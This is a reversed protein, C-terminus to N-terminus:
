KGEQMKSTRAAFIRKRRQNAYMMSMIAMGWMMGVVFVVIITIILVIM